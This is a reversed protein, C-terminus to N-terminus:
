LDGDGAVVPLGAGTWGDYGDDYLLVNTFGFTGLLEAVSRAFHCHTNSCYVTILTDRPLDAIRDVYNEPEMAYLNVAGGIHGAAYEDPTRADAVIGVKEKVIKEMQALTIVRFPEQGAGDTDAAKPTGTPPTAGAAPLTDAAPVTASTSVTDAAAGDPKGGGFIEEDSVSVKPPAVRILSLGTGSFANYALGAFLSATVIVAIQRGPFSGRERM